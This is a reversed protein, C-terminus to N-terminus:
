EDDELDDLTDNNGMVLYEYAKSLALMMKPIDNGDLTQTSKWEGQSNRYRKQLATKKITVVAGNRTVENEFIAAECAGCKFRKEPKPM